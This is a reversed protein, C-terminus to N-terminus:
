PSSRRWRQSSSYSGSRASTRGSGPAASRTRRNFSRRSGRPAPTRPCAALVGVCADLQEADAVQEIGDGGGLLGALGLRLGRDGLRGQLLGAAALAIMTPSEVKSMSAAARMPAGHTPPGCRHSRRRRARPRRRPAPRRRRARRQQRASQSASATASAGFREELPGPRVDRSGAVRLSRLWSTMTVAVAGSARSRTTSSSGLMRSSSAVDSRKAPKSTWTAPSPAAARFCAASCWGSRTTSSTISGSM